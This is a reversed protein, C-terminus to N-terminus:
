LTKQGIIVVDGRGPLVIYPMTFLVPGWTTEIPLRLPCSPTEIDCKQSLSMVVRARGVFAQTLATQTMGAQGQLAEVLEESIVTIASGSYVLVKVEAAASAGPVALREAVDQTLAELHPETGM